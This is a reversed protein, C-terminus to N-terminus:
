PPLQGKPPDTQRRYDLHRTISVVVELAVVFCPAQETTKWDFISQNYIRICPHQQSLRKKQLKALNASIEVINYQTREYVEPHESALFDLINLALTGNGAGTEYIVFDDYPFYKLLYESVLCRAV